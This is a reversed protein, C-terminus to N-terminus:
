KESEDAPVVGSGENTTQLILEVAAAVTSVTMDPKPQNEPWSTSKNQLWITSLGVSRGGAIDLIPDDGTMWGGHSVSAGCRQAIIGFIAPEPKRIGVEDSICWADVLTSFGARHIKGHQNDTMGNTVIGIRWGAARLRRLAELGQPQCTVLEPM